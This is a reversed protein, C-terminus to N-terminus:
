DLFTCNEFYKECCNVYLKNLSIKHGYSIQCTNECNYLHPHNHTTTKTFTDVLRMAGMFCDDGKM